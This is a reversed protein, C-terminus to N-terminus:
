LEKKGALVILASGFIVCFDSINFVIQNLWKWPTHFSFYDVVYGRKIRDYLNSAGGGIALSLGLMLCPNKKRPLFLCWVAALALLVAGSAKKVLGPSDKLFNLAVGKNHYKRLRIRGKCLEKGEQADQRAEMRGKLFYDGAFVSAAVMAYRM